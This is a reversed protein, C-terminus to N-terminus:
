VNRKIEIGVCIGQRSTYGSSYITTACNITVAPHIAATSQSIRSSYIFAASYFCNFAPSSTPDMNPGIKYFKRCGGSNDGKYLEQRLQLPHDVITKM